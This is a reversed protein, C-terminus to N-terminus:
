KMIFKQAQKTTTDTLVLTDGEITYTYHSTIEKSYVKITVSIEATESNYAYTADVTGSYTTKLTPLKAKTYTIKATGDELFDMSISKDEVVWNGAFPNKEAEEVAKSIYIGSVTAVVAVSVLVIIAILGKKNM